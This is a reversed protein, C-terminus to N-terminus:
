LVNQDKDFNTGYFHYRKTEEMTSLNIATEDDKITLFGNGRVKLYSDLVEYKITMQDKDEEM